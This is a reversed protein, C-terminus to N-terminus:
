GEPATSPSPASRQTLRVRLWAREAERQRATRLLALRRASRAAIAKQVPTLVPQQDLTPLQHAHM